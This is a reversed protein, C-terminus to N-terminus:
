LAETYQQMGDYMRTYLIRYATYYIMYSQTYLRYHVYPVDLTHQLDVEVADCTALLKSWIIDLMTHMIQQINHPAHRIAYTAYLQYYLTDYLTCCTYCPVHMHCIANLMYCVAYLM